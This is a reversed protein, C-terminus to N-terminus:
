IVRVPGSIGLPRYENRRTWTKSVPNDKLSKIYNGIITTIKIRIINEGKKVSSGIDYVHEGYWKSGITEGNIILESVGHVIGLDLCSFEKDDSEFRKEYIIEGAFTKAQESDPFDALSGIVFSSEQGNIYKLNLSWSGSLEKGQGQISIPKYVEGKSNDEFIIMLSAARPIELQLENNRGNLGPYLYKKGTEPNWIWSSLKEDAQFEAKVSIHESLSTNTIFFMPAGGILYASQNLFKNTKVFRVFPKLGLEDQMKKYWNIVEGEPAPYLVVNKNKMLDETIKKVAADNENGNIFDPSKFPKVGIFIIKGGEKAFETLSKATDIDLTEIGPLFLADYSRGNYSMRGDRFISNKIIKESVYDCGGGNQNIAEWLNNQYDPYWKQPFPDRQPGHKLWLDTLPQLIAINARPTANQLLYSIRTKYEAWKPFYPWWTNRENFYTGYRVWGPFPADPPSYNFGHLISHNIGSINTQDGAIKITELSAIFVINTNTIEECSIIRKGALVAGSSVYKNSMRPARGNLGLDPYSKGLDGSLWTEAEPIDIEMSAELPHLGRGYAQMRSKVNNRHCWDNFTDLFREKFLEIRTKYLDLGVRKIEESVTDCFVTGYDEDVPNGMHGVKKLVFPLYPLLSYGRRKEFEDPLDDVWNAGELEMSDCFMARIYH